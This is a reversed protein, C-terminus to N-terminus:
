RAESRRGFSWWSGVPKEARAAPEGDHGNAPVADHGRSAIDAFPSVTPRELEADEMDPEPSTEPEEVGARGAEMAPARAQIPDAGPLPPAPLGGDAAPGDAAPHALSELLASAREAPVVAGRRDLVRRARRAFPTAENPRGQARLVEAFALLAGARVDMLDTQEALRIAQRAVEGAEETRDQAAFARARASRWAVQTVVDDPAMARWVNELLQIAEESRGADLMVHALTSGIAARLGEDGVRVAADLAQGLLEEARGPRRALIEVRAARYLVRALEAPRDLEEAAHRAAEIQAEAEEFSGRRALLIGLVASAEVDTLGGGNSRDLAARCRDVSENVPAPMGELAEVMARLSETEERALGASAAHDAARLADRAAAAWHGWRRHVTARASWVSSLGADDEAEGCAAEARDAAAWITETRDRRSGRVALAARLLRARAELPRDGADRSARAAQISLREAAGPRGLAALATATRLLVEARTPDDAELLAAARELAGLREEEDGLASLLDATTALLGAARRGPDGGSSGAERGLAAAAELHAAIAPAHRELRDSHRSELWRACREHVEARIEPPVSSRAAARVLEHGFRYTEVDGGSERGLFRRAVLAGLRDRTLPDDGPALEDVLAAPIDVGAVSLLGLCAREELDLDQVRRSLLERLDQPFPQLGTGPVWRRREWRLLGRDALAAVLQELRLANGGAAAVLRDRAPSSPEPDRLLEALLARMEDPRLPTIRVQEVPERVWGDPWGGTGGTAVVLVPAGSRLTATRVLELFWPGARDADDALLVLPREEAAAELFRRLAWGTADPDAAGPLGLAPLLRRAVRDGDPRGELLREIGARVDEVGTSPGFGAIAELLGALAALGGPEAAPGWRVSAVRARDEAVVEDLFDEVLRTAGAGPDGFVRVVVGTREAAAHRLASRLREMEEERGVLGPRGLTRTAPDPGIELLRLPGTPETGDISANPHIPELEADGGVRRYVSEAVVIEGPEARRRLGAAQDIVRGRWLAEAEPGEGVVEAIGVGARLGLPGGDLARRLEASVRLAAMPGDGAAPEPGFVAAVAATEGDLDEVQAGALRFAERAAELAEPPIAAPDGDDLPWPPESETGTRHVPSLECVVATVIAGGGDPAPIDGDREYGGVPDDEDLPTGCHQCFRAEPSSGGGCRGCTGPALSGELADV